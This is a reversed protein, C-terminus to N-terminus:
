DLVLKYVYIYIYIYIYIYVFVPFASLFEVFVLLLSLVFPFHQFMNPCFPFFAIFPFIFICSSSIFWFISAFSSLNFFSISLPYFLVFLVPCELVVFVITPSPVFVYWCGSALSASYNQLLIYFVLSCLSFTSYILLMAFSISRSSPPGFASICM